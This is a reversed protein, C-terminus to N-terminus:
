FYTSNKKGKDTNLQSLSVTYFIAFRKQCPSGNRVTYTRNTVISSLALYIQSQCIVCILGGKTALNQEGMGTEGGKHTTQEGHGQKSSQQLYTCFRARLRVSVVKQKNLFINPQWSCHMLLSERMSTPVKVMRHGAM